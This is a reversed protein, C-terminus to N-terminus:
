PKWIECEKQSGSNFNLFLHKLPFKRKVLKNRFLVILNIGKKNIQFTINISVQQCKLQFTEVGMFINQANRFFGKACQKKYCM